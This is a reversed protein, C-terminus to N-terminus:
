SLGFKPSLSHQRSTEAKGSRTETNVNELVFQYGEADNYDIGLYDATM